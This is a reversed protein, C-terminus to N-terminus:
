NAGEVAKQLQEFSSFWSIRNLFDALTPSQARLTRVAAGVPDEGAAGEPQDAYAGYFAFYAQNLKRLSKYGHDWFVRRRMEMYQEAEDIKGKALMEDVAVRTLHMEKNFNFAPPEQPSAPSTQTQPPPPVLEPYFTELMARGIEKGAISATTENMIRLQPDKLYSVGLPRLTLFNHVWEHAVVESLWNLDNTQEVMTPYMGIGGIPVVLSSVNLSHAVNDELAVQQDLTLDPILSIDDDERIVNRPSTILALPLPTGHFLVPPIPQGGLSIGTQKVIYSFQSELVGEATPGIQNRRVILDDLHRRLPQTATKPDTIAPDSYAVRIQQETRQIEEVLKLYEIVLQHQMPTSLYSSSNLAVEFLKLRLADLTWGIFDFETNRTYARIIETRDGPIQNSATLLLVALLLVILSAFFHNLQRIRRMSRLKIM